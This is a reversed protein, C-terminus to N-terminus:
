LYSLTKVKYEELTVYSHIVLERAVSRHCDSYTLVDGLPLQPKGQQKYHVVHRGKVELMHLIGATGIAQAFVSDCELV